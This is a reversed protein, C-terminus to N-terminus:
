MNWEGSEVINAIIKHVPFALEPAFEQNLIKPLDNQIGSKPKKAARIKCYTDYESMTPPSGPSQLKNQVRCPLLSITLPPFEQSISAFHDTIM